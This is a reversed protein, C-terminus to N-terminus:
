PDGVRAGHETKYFYANKRHLIAKKLAQECINNHTGQLPVHFGRTFTGVPSARGLRFCKPRDLLHCIPQLV